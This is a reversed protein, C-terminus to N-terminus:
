HKSIIHVNHHAYQGIVLGYALILLYFVLLVQDFPKTEDSIDIVAFRQLSIHLILNFVKELKIPGFVSHPSQSRLLIFLDGILKLVRELRLYQHVKKENVEEIDKFM